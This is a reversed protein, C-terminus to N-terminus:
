NAVAEEEFEQLGYYGEGHGVFTDHRKIYRSLSSVLSPKQVTVGALDRIDKLISDIHCIKHRHHLVKHAWYVASGPRIPQKSSSGRTRPRGRKRDPTAGAAEIIEELEAQLKAREEGLSDLKERLERVRSVIESSMRAVPYCYWMCRAFSIRPLPLFNYASASKGDNPADDPHISRSAGM